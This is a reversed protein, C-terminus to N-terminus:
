RRVRAAGRGARAGDGGLRAAAPARGVAVALAAREARDRDVDGHDGRLRRVPLALADCVREREPAQLLASANQPTRDDLPLLHVPPLNSAGWACLSRARHLQRGTKPVRVSRLSILCMYWTNNAVSM